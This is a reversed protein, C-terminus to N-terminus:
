AIDQSPEFAVITDMFPMTQRCKNKEWAMGFTDAM